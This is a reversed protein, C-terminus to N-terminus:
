YGRIKSQINRLIIRLRTHIGVGSYRGKSLHRVRYVGPVPLPKGQSRLLWRFARDEHAKCWTESPTQYLKIARCYGVARCVDGHAIQLPGTAKGPYHSTFFQPDIDIVQPDASGAQLIPNDEPLLATCREEQPFLLAERSGQLQDALTDLCKERFLLDCDTFWVWDAKTKLAAMNRGVGRRFLHQKTLPCWNWTVNPSNQRSFFNLVRVTKVDDSSYFVTMTVDINEPPFIVLSSLQYILFHSYNWCHSVIEIHLRGTQGLRQEKLPLDPEFWHAPIWGKAAIRFFLLFLNKM